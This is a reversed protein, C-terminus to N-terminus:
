ALLRRKIENWLVEPVGEFHLIDVGHFPYGDSIADEMESILFETTWEEINDYIRM